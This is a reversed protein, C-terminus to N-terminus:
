EALGVMMQPARQPLGIGRYQFGLSELEARDFMNRLDVIRPTAMLKHLRKFELSGFIDWETVLVLCEADVAVAYPDDCYEVDRLITTAPTTGQPDFAAIKAGALQLANIIAISSAERLDDTNPKFALGLVAIKKGDVDGGCLEIIRQAMAQKRHENVAITSEVLKLPSANDRGTQALAMTDKPFCSGGYGPGPVLFKPGIRPDLGLGLAVDRVDAGTNECLDAIENIFSVKMALFANAAYKTLEASRRSTFILLNRGAIIPHYLQKIVPRARAENIGVIIRDPHRFDEIANGQRLFEPNSVVAIDAAPNTQRIMDEVQDGTGVPVTSKTIVVTFNRVHKAVARAAAHVYALEARGDGRRTPTGVAILVADANAVPQTMDASFSLRGAKINKAVMPELGPEYFPVHGASLAAVKAEDLDVCTVSHGVDAFCAGSVLGVYGSGVVTIQM